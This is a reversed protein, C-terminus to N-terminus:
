FHYCIGLAKLTSATLPVDKVDPNEGVGVGYM